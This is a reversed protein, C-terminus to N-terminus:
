LTGARGKMVMWNSIHSQSGWDPASEPHCHLRLTEVSWPAGARELLWWTAGEADRVKVTIM